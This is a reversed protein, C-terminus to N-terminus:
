GLSLVERSHKPSVSITGDFSIGLMLSATHIITLM